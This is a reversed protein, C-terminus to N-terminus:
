NDLRLVVVYSIHMAGNVVCVFFCNQTGFDSICSLLTHLLCQVICLLLPNLINIERNRFINETISNPTKNDLPAKVNMLIFDPRTPRSNM